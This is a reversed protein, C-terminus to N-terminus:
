EYVGYLTNAALAVGEGIDTTSLTITPITPTNSLDTYSGSTAVTALNPKNLIESVGSSSNWDSNVQAAPITPTNSLDTYSGSTAVTSLEDAEVYTSTGDAGNNTLESTRTPLESKLAVTSDISFETGTLDLGAGATYTTDTASLVGTNSDISLNTGVKIGGLDNASAIPLTYQSVTTWLGNGSLFKGEDGAAPAPVLGATGADQSTAGTFASYTTDTASITDGSISINSGATLANQKGNWATIDTSTVFKNTSTSDDVLDADLPSQSTIESQLGSVLDAVSFEITNGNQLTLIIKKTQSDYSGNVVVSELPLDITQASGLNNGDQDKLQATVVYTSNDITLSISAGYKTSAPLASVDAATTPVTINITSNSSANATFTGVDTSNKQITLTADNVTPITPTNLLDAYDGTTAVTALEDAEVYTSTGDSGDNTLDSTQTPLDTQLAVVTGDVSFETGTLDLGTGATYTTDTASIVNQNSISVNTGATYTTDTNVPQWGQYNYSACWWAYPAVDTSRMICYVVYDSYVYVEVEEQLLGTPMDSLEVTGLYATGVEPSLALISSMLQQTTGDTTVSAPFPKFAPAEDVYTKIGESTVPNTSNATPTGDFTLIPQITTTDVSFETGSLNLGSGATYTTDVASIENNADISINSGATLKEQIVSTDVSFETDSLSLGSGATYTTDVASITDDVISINDGATLVDQKEELLADTQDKTYYGEVAGIFNWAQNPKDWRYYTSEDDHTEDVLVRIVDKDGLDSTDYALLDAYSGVIDVVDPNNRLDEIEQEIAQDAIERANVEDALGTQLTEIDEQIEEITPWLNEDVMVPVGESSYLYVNNNAEYKVMANCYAGNKPAVDSDKSDDGLAAPIVVYRLGSCSKKCNVKPCPKTWNKLNYDQEM